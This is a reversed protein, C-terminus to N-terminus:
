KEHGIQLTDIINGVMCTYTCMLRVYGGCAKEVCRVLLHLVRFNSGFALSAVNQPNQRESKPAAVGIVVESNPLTSIYDVLSRRLEVEVPLSSRRDRDNVM